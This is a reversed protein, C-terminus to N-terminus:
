RSCKSPRHDAVVLLEDAANLDAVVLLYDAAANLAAANVDFSLLGTSRLDACPTNRRWPDSGRIRHDCVCAGADCNSRVHWCSGKVPAM